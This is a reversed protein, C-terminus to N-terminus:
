RAQVAIPWRGYHLSDRSTAAERARDVVEGTEFDWGGAAAVYFEDLNTANDFSVGMWPPALLIDPDPAAQEWAADYDAQRMM